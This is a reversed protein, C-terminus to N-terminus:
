FNFNASQMLSNCTSNKVNLLSRSRASGANGDADIGLVAQSGSNTCTIYGDSFLNNSTIGLSGLLQALDLKDAGILFDTITDIGDRLSSYVFVDNGAGGTLTDAGIGGILVDDGATGTLTDRGNSGNIKKLLNLGIVVPDHDSAKYPASIYLDQPKFETNYDIVFPEDANIHWELAGTIQASMATNALAHDLYGAEGDFVYSYGQQGNFRAIQDSIGQNALYDIPDEQGYSNLDGIVVIDNDAANAQVQPIFAQILQAAQNKRTANYCGQGDNQDADLGSASSCSKSKFHNVIVSFKEGNAAAFTQALTPRNNVGNTDSLALGAPNLKAPKYIMAVKIADSGTGNAPDAIRAYIGAGLKANLGDVLNQVATAGNNQIEMLGVVDANIAAIENIIKDRQRNFEVLNDAGRCNSALVSAGLACGQGTLGSATQGNTFTTFYNLVNASAVKINGGVSAPAASRPNDRSFVPAVTPHIKYDRPGTSSATILGHDIVGTLTSLSDGARLTNDQGIFPIPNPNQASSGDDLTIRRRANEDALNLAEASGPRYINSPKILRGDASLTVQGYRGQFYNQSVTLPSVIRVLMGEFRELDGEVAEPLSIDLAALPNSSSLVAINTPLTLETVTNFEAVTGQLRIKDGVNVGTTTGYVFVGDSTLPNADGNEDQLYFGNLGPFVATVIGETTVLNGTVPSATGSGQIDYIPTTAVAAAVNINVTCSANQADNNAFNITVPYSGLALSNAVSLDATATAGTASAQTFNTLSIASIAPSTISVQTVQGDADTAALTALGSAGVTVELTAPCSAVIPQNIVIGCTHVPTSSNRPAPVGTAFDVSNNNQDQCGANARLLASTNSPAAAASGEYFNVTTGSGFGVVDVIKALDTASCPTSGGNCALGTTANVLAVKGATASMNSTGTADPTPLAAGVAGGALKLLFYQGPQLTYNPLGGAPNAVFSGTGAASAYQISYGALNVPSAGANFIEVYDHTYIAGANGGGGYIQSIVLGNGSAEAAMNFAGLAVALAIVVSKKRFKTVM